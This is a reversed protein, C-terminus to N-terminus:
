LFDEDSERDYEIKIYSCGKKQSLSEMLQPTNEVGKDESRCAGSCEGSIGVGKSPRPSAPKQQIEQEPSVTKTVLKRDGDKQVWKKTPKVFITCDEACHDKLGCRECCPSPQEVEVQQKWHREGAKLYIISPVKKVAVIKIRAYLYSDNEISEADVALLTGLSRGICELSSDGWYEM